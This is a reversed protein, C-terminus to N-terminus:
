SQGVASGVGAVAALAGGRPLRRRRVAARGSGASREAEPGGRRRLLGPYVGRDSRVLSPPLSVGFERELAPLLRRSAPLTSPPSNRLAAPCASRALARTLRAYQRGLATAPRRM